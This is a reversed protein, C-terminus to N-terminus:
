MYEEYSSRTMCIVGDKRDVVNKVSLEEEYMERAKPNSTLLLLTRFVPFERIQERICKVMWRGLGRRQHAPDIYMDTLYVVTVHDTVLRAMGIQGWMNPPKINPIELYLGLTLSNALLTQLIEASMPQAWPMHDSAFAKNIFDHDLLNPDTSIKYTSESTTLDWTRIPLKSSNM